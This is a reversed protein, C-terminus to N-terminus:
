LNRIKAALSQFDASRGISQGIALIEIFYTRLYSGDKTQIFLTKEAGELLERIKCSANKDVHVGGMENAVHKIVDRRSVKHGIRIIGPADLYEHLRWTRDIFADLESPAIHRVDRVAIESVVAFGVDATAPIGTSPNNARHALILAWDM